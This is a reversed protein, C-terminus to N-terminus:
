TGQGAAQLKDFERQNQEEKPALQPLQSSESSGTQKNVSEQQKILDALQRMM